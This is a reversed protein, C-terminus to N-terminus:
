IDLITKGGRGKPAWPVSDADAPSVMEGKGQPHHTSPDSAAVLSLSVPQDGHSQCQARSWPPLVSLLYQPHPLLNHVLAPLPSSAVSLQRTWLPFVLTVFGIQLLSFDSSSGAQPHALQQQQCRVTSNWGHGRQCLGLLQRGGSCVWFFMQDRDPSTLLQLLCWKKQKNIRTTLRRESILLKYSM